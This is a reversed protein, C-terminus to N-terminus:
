ASSMLQAYYRWMGRLHNEDMSAGASGGDPFTKERHIGRGIFLWEDGQAQIGVQSREMIEFDDPALFGAPGFSSEHARLLEENIEAPAGKLLAPQYYVHTENVSLPQVRRFHTQVYMLNPFVFLIPARGGLLHEARDKGYLKVLTDQYAKRAPSPEQRPPAFKVGRFDEVMHGGPLYHVADDHHELRNTRGTRSDALDFTFKHIFHGHYAGELSNEPLMKWNGQYRMKQMGASLAVQGEPSRDIILDLFEKAQGLHEDLSIGEASLSGFILGRYSGLRPVPILGFDEKRLSSDYADDFTPALLDGQNSYTWGHYPCRLVKANGQEHHCVLNARHRCRNFFVRIEGDSGRAVLVPQLGIQRRIYDGNQPVESEHGLYVWVKHWIENMERQFLDPDNYLRGHIRDAKILEGVNIASQTSNPVFQL